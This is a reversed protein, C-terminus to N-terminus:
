LHLFQRIFLNVFLHNSLYVPWTTSPYVSRLCISFYVPQYTSLYVFRRTSLNISPRISLDVPLCASFYFFLCISLYAFRRTSLNYISLDLYYAPRCTSLSIPVRISLDVSLLLISMNAPLCTSPNVHQRTSMDSVTERDIGVQRIRM